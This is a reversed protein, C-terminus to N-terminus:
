EPNSRMCADFPAISSIVCGFIPGILCIAVMNVDGILGGWLKKLAFGKTYMVDVFYVGVEKWVVILVKSCSLNGLMWEEVYPSCCLSSSSGRWSMMPGVKKFGGGGLM